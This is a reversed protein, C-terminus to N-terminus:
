SCGIRPRGREVFGEPSLYSFLVPNPNHKEVDCRLVSICLFVYVLEQRYNSPKGNGILRDEKRGYLHEFRRIQETHYGAAPVYDYNKPPLAINRTSDNIIPM